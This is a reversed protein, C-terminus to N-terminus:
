KGLIIQLQRFDNETDIDLSREFPMQYAVTEPSLFSRHQRLWETRAAYVAGNLSCVIPLDQRRTFSASPLLPTMEGSPGVTYMWYPSDQAPCVSVCAPAGARMCL